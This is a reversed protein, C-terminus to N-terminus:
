IREAVDVPHHWPLVIVAIGIDIKSTAAAAYSALLDPCPRGYEEFHHETFWFCDYGLEECLRVQEITEHHREPQGHLTNIVTIISFDVGYEEHRPRAGYGARPARYGRRSEVM